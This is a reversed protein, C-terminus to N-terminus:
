QEVHTVEFSLVARTGPAPELHLERAPDSGYARFRTAMQGDCRVQQSVQQYTSIVATLDVAGEGRCHAVLRYDDGAQAQLVALVEEDGRGDFEVVGRDAATTHTEGLADLVAALLSPDDAGAHPDQFEKIAAADRQSSPSDPHRHNKCDQSSGM